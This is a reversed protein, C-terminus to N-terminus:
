PRKFWVIFTYRDRASASVRHYTDPGCRHVHMRGEVQQVDLSFRNGGENDGYHTTGGVGTQLMVVATFTRNPTHNPVHKSGDWKVRDSHNEMERGAPMRALVVTEPVMSDSPFLSRVRNAVQELFPAIEPDRDSLRVVHDTGGEHLHQRRDYIARLAACQDPRFMEDVVRVDQRFPVGYVGQRAWVNVAWKEGSLVPDGGHLCLDAASANPYEFQAAHGAIARVSFDAEPFRTAGGAAPTNLYILLTKTRQGGQLLAPASGPDNPDFWDNHPEYKDGPGYHIVQLPELHDRPVGLKEAARTALSALLPTEDKTFYAGRSTRVDSPVSGGNSRDLVTSRALRPRALEIVQACEEATAFGAWVRLRARNSAFLEQM